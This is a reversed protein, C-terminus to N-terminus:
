FDPDLFEFTKQSLAVEQSGVSSDPDSFEFCKKQTDFCKGPIWFKLRSGFIWFTKKKPCVGGAPRSIKKSALTPFTMEQRLKSVNKKM